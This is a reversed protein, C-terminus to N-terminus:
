KMLIKYLKLHNLENIFNSINISYLQFFLLSLNLDKYQWLIFERFYFKFLMLLFKFLLLVVM